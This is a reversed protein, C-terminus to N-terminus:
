RRTPSHRPPRSTSTRWSEFRSWSRSAKTPSSRSCLDLRKLTAIRAVFNLDEDTAWTRALSVEAISGDRDRVVFGGRAEIRDVAGQVAPTDAAGAKPAATQASAPLTSLAALM